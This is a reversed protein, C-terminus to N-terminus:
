SGPQFLLPAFENLYNRWVRWNHGGETVKFVHRVGRKKLTESLRQAPEILADAKGCAIWFLRLRKNVAAADAVVQAWPAEQEPGRLGMSFVGIWSFRDTNTLGISLSQGGGMSLGAIARDAPKGSIRYAKEVLPVIESMFETGFANRDAAMAGPAGLGIGPLPHGFPMAVVMPKAKGAAILNDLIFNARGVQVWGAETDGSGHLLYLVPYTGKGAEYGPPTYVWLSRPAGVTKSHYWHMHVTGHPAPRPDYFADGAPPVEVMSSNNTVGPKIFGSTPDLV